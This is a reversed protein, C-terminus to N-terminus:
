DTNYGYTRRFTSVTVIKDYKTSDTGYIVTRKRTPYGDLRSLEVTGYTRAFNGQSYAYFDAICPVTIDQTFSRGNSSVGDMSGRYTYRNNNELTDGRGSTWVRDHGGNFTVTTGDPYSVKFDTVTRVAVYAGDPLIQFNKLEITGSLKKSSVYYDTFTVLRNALTDGPFTPYSVTIIGNHLKALPDSCGETPFTITINKNSADNHITGCPLASIGPFSADNFGSNILLVEARYVLDLVDDAEEIGLAANQIAIEEEIFDESYEKYCGGALLLLFVFLGGCRVRKM